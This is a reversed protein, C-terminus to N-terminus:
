SITCSSCKVVIAEVYRFIDPRYRIVNWMIDLSCENGAFALVRPVLKDDLGARSFPQPTQPRSSISISKSSHTPPLLGILAGSLDRLLYEPLEIPLSTELKALPSGLIEHLQQIPCYFTNFWLIRQFPCLPGTKGIHTGVKGDVVPLTLCRFRHNTLIGKSGYMSDQLCQIDDRSLGDLGSATTGNDRRKRSHMELVELSSTGAGGSLLARGLSGVMKSMEDAAVSTINDVLVLRKLNKNAELSDLLASAGDFRIGNDTLRLEMLSENHRLARAFERAGEESMENHSLDLERLATKSRFVGSRVSERASVDEAYLCRALARGGEIGVDCRSLNLRLLRDNYSLAEALRSAGVDGVVPATGRAPCRGGEGAGDEAASEDPSAGRRRGADGGEADNSPTAGKARGSSFDLGRRLYEDNLRIRPVWPDVVSAPASSSAAAVVVVTVCGPSPDPGGDDIRV